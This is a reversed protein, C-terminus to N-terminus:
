PIGRRDGGRKRKRGPKKRVRIAAEWGKIVSSMVEVHQAILAGLIRVSTRGRVLAPVVGKTAIRLRVRAAGGEAKAKALAATAQRLEEVFGRSLAGQALFYERHRDAATLLAGAAALLKGDTVRKWPLELARLQSTGPTSAETGLTVLPQMHYLRLDERLARKQKALSASRRTMEWQTSACLDLDRLARDLQRRAPSQNVTALRTAYRDLLTRARVLAALRLRQRLTM